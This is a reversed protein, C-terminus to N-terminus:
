KGTPAYVVVTRAIRDQLCRGRDDWLMMLYGALLPIAALYLGAVRLLARRPKLAGRGHRDIVKICMVRSGPTQGTSSWFFVFYSISWLLWLGALVAAIITDAEEPLHLISLGLGVIVGVIAAAGNVILGDLAFAISRTVLGAYGGTSSSGDGDSAIATAGRLRRIAETQALQTQSHEATISPGPTTSRPPTTSV